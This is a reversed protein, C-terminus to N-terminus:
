HAALQALLLEGWGHGVVTHHHEVGILYRYVPRALVATPQHDGPKFRECRAVIWFQLCFIQRRRPTLPARVKLARGVVGQAAQRADPYVVVDARDAALRQASRHTCNSGM